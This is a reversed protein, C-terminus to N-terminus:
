PVKACVGKPNTSLSITSQKLCSPLAPNWAICDANTKCGHACMKFVPLNANRYTNGTQTSRELTCYYADNATPQGEEISCAAFASGQLGCNKSCIGISPDYGALPLGFMCRGYLCEADSACAEGHLKGGPNVPEPACLNWNDVATSSPSCKAASGADVATDAMADPNPPGADPAAAADPEAADPSDAQGADGVDVGTTDTALTDGGDADATCLQWDASHQCTGDKCEDATCPDGDSCQGASTCIQAAATDPTATDALIDATDSADVADPGVVCGFSSGTAACLVGLACVQTVRWLGGECVLVASNTGVLTCMTAGPTGCTSGAVVAVPNRGAQGTGCGVALLVSTAALIRISWLHKHM